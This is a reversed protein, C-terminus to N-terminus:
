FDVKFDKLDGGAKATVDTQPPRQIQDASTARPATVSPIEQKSAAAEAAGPMVPHPVFKPLNALAHAVGDKEGCYERWMGRLAAEFKLTFWEESLLPSHLMRTRM